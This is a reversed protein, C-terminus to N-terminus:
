EKTDCRDLFAGLQGLYLEPSELLAHHSCDELVNFEAHPIARSWGSVCLDTVFDHEGRLVLTPCTIASPAECDVELGEIAATGRWTSGAHAYAAALAEPAPEARCNFRQMFLEVQDGCEDRVLRGAESEVLPVSTPTNSLTLSVPGSRGALKERNAYEFALLGGWSQGYLHFHDISLHSILAKLDDVSADVGYEGSDAPPADSRGCGLQDYFIVPRTELKSLDFLYDSPVQPGGHCVILPTATSSPNCINYWLMHGGQTSARAALARAQGHSTLTLGILAVIVVARNM